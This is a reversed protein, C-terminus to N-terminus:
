FAISFTTFEGTAQGQTCDMHHIHGRLQDEITQQFADLEQESGEAVLEVRGDTLNRVFGRVQFRSAIAQTAFRFGVGQVDGSFFVSRRQHSHAEEPM